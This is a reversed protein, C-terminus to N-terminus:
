PREVEQHGCGDEVVVTWSLIVRFFGVVTWGM